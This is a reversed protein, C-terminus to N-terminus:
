EELAQELSDIHIAFGCAPKSEDSFIEYLHDYQGGTLVPETENDLFGQFLFGSYYKLDRVFSLDMCLDSFRKERNWGEWVDQIEKKSDLLEQSLIGRHSEMLDMLRHYDQIEVLGLLFDGWEKSVSEELLWNQIGVSDKIHIAHSLYHLKSEDVKNKVLHDFFSRIFAVHGLVVTPRSKMGSLSLLNDSQNLIKLIDRPSSSGLSEAGLQLIERRSANRKKHDRIRKSVYYLNQNETLHSLGAMGKVVQVTLDIGPSIERGSLDRYRLVSKEEDPHIQNLFSQSYDMAPIVVENYGEGSLYDTLTDVLKRRKKSETPGLFHFGDPLWRTESNKMLNM